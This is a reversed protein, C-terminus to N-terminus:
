LPNYIIIDQDNLGYMKLFNLALYIREENEIKYTIMIKRDDTVEISYVTSEVPLDQKLTELKSLFEDQEIEENTQYINEAEEFQDISYGVSDGLNPTRNGASTILISITFIVLLTIVVGLFTNNKYFDIFKKM